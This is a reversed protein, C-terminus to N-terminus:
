RRATVYRATDRPRPRGALLLGIAAVSALAPWLRAGTQMMLLLGLDAVGFALVWAAVRAVTQIRRPARRLVDTRQLRVLAASGATLAAAIWVVLTVTLPSPSPSPTGSMTLGASGMTVVALFFISWAISALHHPTGM